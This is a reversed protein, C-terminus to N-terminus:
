LYVEFVHGGGATLPAYKYVCSQSVGICTGTEKDHIFNFVGSPSFDCTGKLLYQLRKPCYRCPYKMIRESMRYKYILARAPHKFYKGKM